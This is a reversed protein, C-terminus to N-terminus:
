KGEGGGKVFGGWGAVNMRMGLFGGIQMDMRWRGGWNMGRGVEVVGRWM